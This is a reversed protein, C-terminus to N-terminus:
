RVLGMGQSMETGLRFEELEELEEESMSWDEMTEEQALREMKEYDNLNDWEEEEASKEAQEQQKQSESKLSEEPLVAGTKEIVHKATEEIIQEQNETNQINEPQMLRDIAEKIKTNMQESMEANDMVDEPVLEQAVLLEKIDHVTEQIREDLTVEPVEQNRFAGQVAEKTSLAEVTRNLGQEIKNLVSARIKHLSSNRFFDKAAEFLEKFKAKIRDFIQRCRLSYMQKDTFWPNSYRAIDLGSQLGLRLQKMQEANYAPFAYRSADVGHELGIRVERLQASQMNKWNYKSMDYGAKHGLRLEELIDTPVTPKNYELGVIDVGNEQMLRLQKMQEPSLHIDWYKSTDLHHKQGLKIQRFQESSYKPVTKTQQTNENGNQEAQSQGGENTRSTGQTQEQRTLKATTQESQEQQKQQNKAMQVLPDYQEIYTYNKSLTEGREKRVATSDPDKGGVIYYRDPELEAVIGHEGHALVNERELYLYENRKPIRTVVTGDPETRDIIENSITVKM